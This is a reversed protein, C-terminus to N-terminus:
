RAINYNYKYKLIFFINLSHSNIKNERFSMRYLYLILLCNNRFPHFNLKSLVNKFEFRKNKFMQNVCYNYM